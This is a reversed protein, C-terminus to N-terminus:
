PKSLNWLGDQELMADITRIVELPDGTALAGTTGVYLPPGHRVIAPVQRIGIATANATASGLDDYGVGAITAIVADGDLDAVRAAVRITRDEGPDDHERHCLVFLAQMFKGHRQPWTSRVGEYAALARLQGTLAGRDPYDAGAFGRWELQLEAGAETARVLMTYLRWVGLDAFDFYIRGSFEM